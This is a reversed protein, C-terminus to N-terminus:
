WSFIDKLNRLNENGANMYASHLYKCMELVGSLEFLWVLKSCFHVWFKEQPAYKLCYIFCRSSYKDRYLCDHNASRTRIFHISGINSAGCPIWWWERSHWLATHTCWWTLIHHHHQRIFSITTTTHQQHIMFCTETSWCFAVRGPLNLIAKSFMSNNCFFRTAKKTSKRTHILRM